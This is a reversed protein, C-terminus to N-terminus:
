KTDLLGVLEELSWVHDTLGAEMAPTVRLSQHIRCFNYYAFHLAVLRYRGCMSYCNLLLCCLFERLSAKRILRFFPGVLSAAPAVHENPSGWRCYIECTGLLPLGHSKASILITGEM